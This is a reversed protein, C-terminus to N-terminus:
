EEIEVLKGMGFAKVKGYDVQIFPKEKNEPIRGLMTPVHAVNYTHCRKADLGLSWMISRWENGHSKVERNCGYKKRCLLHAVEHGPTRDIFRTPNEFLLTPNFRILNLSYNATGANTGKINFAIKPYPIEIDLKTRGLDIYYHVKDIAEKRLQAEQQPTEIVRM